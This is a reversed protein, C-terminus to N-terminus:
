LYAHRLRNMAELFSIVAISVGVNADLLQEIASPAGIQELLAVAAERVQPHGSLWAVGNM